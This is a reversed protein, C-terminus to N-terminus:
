ITKNPAPEPGSNAAPGATGIQGGSGDWGRAEYSLSVYGHKAWAGQVSYYETDFDCAWSNTMVIAPFMESARQQGGAGAAPAQPTALIAPLQTGDWSTINMHTFKAEWAPGEAASRALLLPWLLLMLQPSAVGM